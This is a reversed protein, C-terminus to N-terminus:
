YIAIEIYDLKVMSKCISFTECGINFMSKIALKHRVSLSGGQIRFGHTISVKQLYGYEYFELYFSLLFNPPNPKQLKRPLHIKKVLM